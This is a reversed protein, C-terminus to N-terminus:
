LTTCPEDPLMELRNKLEETTIGPERISSRRQLEILEEPDRLMEDKYLAFLKAQQRNVPYIHAQLSGSSDVIEVADDGLQQFFEELPIRSESTGLVITQMRPGKEFVEHDNHV